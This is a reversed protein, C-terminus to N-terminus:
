PGNTESVALGDLALLGCCPLEFLQRASNPRDFPQWRGDSKALIYLRFGSYALPALPVPCVRPM